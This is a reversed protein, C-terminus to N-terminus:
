DEEEIEDFLKNQRGIIVVAIIALIIMLQLLLILFVLFLYLEIHETYFSYVLGSIGLVTTLFTNLVFRFIAHLKNYKEKLSDLKSM